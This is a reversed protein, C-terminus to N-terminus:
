NTGFADVETLELIGLVPIEKQGISVNSLTQNLLLNDYDKVGETNLLISGVRAYSVRYETFILSKLHNKLKTRFNDLIESKMRTGDLLIDASIHIEKTEPSDVTVSAGIPRVTELHDAVANELSEDVEKNSNVILVTVTGAGNDLPFIKANGVGAVEMAWQKYHHINGSTAPLRVKQYFRDRLADDTEEDAGPTIIESLKAGAGSETSIEQLDGSYQNGIDGVTECEAIYNLGELCGTIVYVLGEIGWRSGVPIEATAIVKRVAATAEKRAMGYASITRDLYGELATDPLVLDIFNKLQFYQQALFYACPALADYIISGERKDVNSPVMDLMEQLLEEFTKVIM